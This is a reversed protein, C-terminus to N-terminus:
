NMIQLRARIQRFDMLSLSEALDCAATFRATHHWLRVAHALRSKEEVATAASASANQSYHMIRAAVAAWNPVANRHSWTAAQTIM